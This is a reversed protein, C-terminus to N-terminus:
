RCFLHILLRRNYCFRVANAKEFRDSTSTWQRLKFEMKAASTTVVATLYGVVVSAATHSVEAEGEPYRPHTQPTEYRM